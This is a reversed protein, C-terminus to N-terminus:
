LIIQITNVFAEVIVAVPSVFLFLCYKNNMALKCFFHSLITERYGNIMM